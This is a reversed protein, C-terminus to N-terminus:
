GQICFFFAKRDLAVGDTRAEVEIRWIGAMFLYLQEITYQGSEGAVVRPRISTGHGHDPMRPDVRLEGLMPAGSTDQIHLQFINTGRAPPSPALQELRFSLVGLEGMADVGVDGELRPDATCDVSGAPLENGDGPEPSAPAGEDSCAVCGLLLATLLMSRSALAM